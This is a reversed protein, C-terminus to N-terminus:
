ARYIKKIMQKALTDIKVSAGMDLVSISGKRDGEANLQEFTASMVLDVAEQITMFFRSVNKDTVTLPGGQKIQQKFFPVVSGTSGLVNGFRVTIFRAALKTHLDKSQIIIEALKKTFGMVSSPEVAKDTSILVFCKSKYKEAMNALFLTALSNTRIAESINEECITVHKLAAAHFVIEPKYSKFIKEIEKKNRINSCLYKNINYRKKIFLKQKLEYIANESSDLLLLLKPNFQSISKALESGISGGAGTVLIVKDNILNQIKKTNLRNQRRGLLDELSIEKFMSENNKGELIENPGPSRGVKMGKSEAVKIVEALPLDRMIYTSIVLRQPVRKKVLSSELIDKLNELKGLVPVGRILVKKFEKKDESILGIVEYVSNKRETDRIFSDAEDGVGVLLIPIKKTRNNLSNSFKELISRYIIRASCTCFTFIFFNLVIVLRPINDLRNFIFIMIFLFINAILCTRVLFWLDSISFYRWPRKYINFFYFILPLTIGAILTELEIVDFYNVRLYIALNLSFISSLLDILIVIIVKFNILNNM